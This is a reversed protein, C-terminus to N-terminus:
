PLRAVDRFVREFDRNTAETDFLAKVRRRGAAGFTARRTPDSLLEILAAALREPTEPPVLLGTEGDAVFEPIGGVNSAVVPRATAMAEAAALSGCARAGRTPAAVVTAAAYYAPLENLPVDVSVSVRDPWRAAAVRAENLLEGAGGAILFGTNPLAALVIPIAAILTHLGMDSILRGLFLVVEQGPSFGARQRVVDGSVEPTFRDLAIGHHIVKVQPSLGLERYSRACHETPSLLAAARTVIREVMRRRRRIEIGHSYIEGLNTVVVPIDYLEGLILAITGGSLLNYGSIVRINATKIIRAGRSAHSLHSFWEVAPLRTAATLAPGSNGAAVLGGLFPLMALRRQLRPRARYIAYGNAQMDPGAPGSLVHVDWGSRVLHPVLDELHRPVGGFPPPYNGVLLIGPKRDPRGWRQHVAGLNGSM